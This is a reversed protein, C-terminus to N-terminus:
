YGRARWRVAATSAVPGYITFGTVALTSLAMVAFTGPAAAACEEASADLIGNPFQAAFTVALAGAVLTGTGTKYLPPAGVNGICDYNSGRRFVEVWQGPYLTKTLSGGVTETSYPDFTLIGTGANIVLLSAAAPVSTAAFGISLTQATSGTWVYAEGWYSAGLADSGTGTSIGRMGPVFPLFVDHTGAPLNVLAGSNSSAIVTTRTLTGPSGGNYTGIGFEFNTASSICYHTVSTGSGLAAALSRNNTGAAILTLTGSGTTTTTQVARLPAMTM